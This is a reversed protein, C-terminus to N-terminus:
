RDHGSLEVMRTALDLIRVPRGMDLVFVEGGQGMSGAQLVLQAAEPITMFYRTVDAHTLTIPGGCEIQRRFLPVVSGSSGLVNGFRVMSLRTRNRILGTVPLDVDFRVMTEAALAQLILEAIRKSAGMINTPRVAKDTSILVLSTAGHEISAHAVNLTGLVNNSVGECPNHEVMPVHKYAAAHYVTDPRYAAFIDAIRKADRVNGLLPVLQTQRRGRPSEVNAPAVLESELEQHIEYLGFENHEVLLLKAPHEALIQRSLEAGISGGAGTVLVVKGALDRALLAPNAAIPERGLLDELDLEQFDTVSVRGSALDAM